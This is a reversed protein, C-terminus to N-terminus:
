AGVLEAGGTAAYVVMQMMRVITSVFQLALRSKKAACSLRGDLREMCCRQGIDVTELTSPSIYYSGERM